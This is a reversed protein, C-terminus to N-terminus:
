RKKKKTTAKAARKARREATVSERRNKLTEVFALAAAIVQVDADPIGHLEANDGACVFRALQMVPKATFDSCDNVGYNELESMIAAAFTVVEMHWLHKVVEAAILPLTGEKFLCETFDTGGTDTYTLQFTSPVDGTHVHSVKFVKYLGEADYDNFIVACHLTGEEEDNDNMELELEFLRRGKPPVVRKAEPVRKVLVALAEAMLKNLLKADQPTATVEAEKIEVVKPVMITRTRKKMRAMSKSSLSGTAKGKNKGM